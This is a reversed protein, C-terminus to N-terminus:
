DDQRRGTKTRGRVRTNPLNTRTDGSRAKKGADTGPPEPPGLLDRVGPKRRECLKATLKRCKDSVLPPCM